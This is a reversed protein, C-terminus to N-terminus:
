PLNKFAMNGYKQFVMGGNKLSSKKLHKSIGEWLWELSYQFTLAQNSLEEHSPVEFGQAPDTVTVDPFM